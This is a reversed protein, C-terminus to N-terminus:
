NFFSTPGRKRKKDEEADNMEDPNDEEVDALSAQKKFLQAAKEYELDYELDAKLNAKERTAVIKAIKERIVFGILFGFWFDIILCLEYWPSEFM